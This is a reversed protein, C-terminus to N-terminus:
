AGPLDGDGPEVTLTTVVVVTNASMTRLTPPLRTVAVDMM